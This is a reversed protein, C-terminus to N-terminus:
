IVVRIKINSTLLILYPFHSIKIFFFVNVSEKTDNGTCYSSYEAYSVVM